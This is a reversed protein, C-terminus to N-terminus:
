RSEITFYVSNEELGEWRAVNKRVQHPNDVYKLEMELLKEGGLSYFIMMQM